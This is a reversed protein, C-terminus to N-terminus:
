KSRCRFCIRDEATTFYDNCKSCPRFGPPVLVPIPMPGIVPDNYTNPPAPLDRQLVVPKPIGGGIPHHPCTPSHHYHADQEEDWAHSASAPCVFGCSPCKEVPQGERTYPDGCAKCPSGDIVHHEEAAPNAHAGESVVTAQEGRDGALRTDSVVVGMGGGGGMKLTKFQEFLDRGHFKEAITGLLYDWGPREVATHALALLLPQRESEEIDPRKEAAEARKEAARRTQRTDAAASGLYAIQAEVGGVEVGEPMAQLILHEVKELSDALSSIRDAHAVIIDVKAEVERTAVKFRGEALEREAETSVIRKELGRIREEFREIVGFLEKKDRALGDRAESAQKLEAQFREAEAQWKLALAAERRAEQLERELKMKENELAAAKDMWFVIGEREKNGM